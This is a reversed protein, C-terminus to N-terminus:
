VPRTSSERPTDLVTRFLKLMSQTSYPKPLFHQLGASAAKIVDGHANLGSTGIIKAGPDHRFLTEVMTAGDMVPMMIDTLILAIEQKYRAYLAVGEAGDQATLVRYGFSELTQRTINRISVEDDVVLVLENRGRPLEPAFPARSGARLAADAPLQITFTTGNGLESDVHIAGGHGKVVAHVTALGLGTGKGQDKTTFFPEFIRDRIEPPVGCGTDSVKLQVYTGASLANAPGTEEAEITVNETVFTLAGGNPMADRANVALNLLVQHLQTPDGIIPWINTPVQISLQINRPFTERIIGELDTFVHRLNVAVRQGDVGRAFTLVQRVLDAGRRASVQITELLQLRQPNEGSDIKLLDISMLIPALVNNLDHAIGGALTGISEMRQARLFQTELQKRETHDSIGGVMRYAHGAADRMIQCRDQVVAYKGDKRRFRYEAGWANEGSAITQHIGNFVRQYDDPHVRKAWSEMGPELEDLSYGFVSQFTDSWWVKNTTLNWDWVVDSVARAVMKFRQESERLAAESAKRASIDRAIVQVERRGRFDFSVAAVEVAVATGDRRLFKQEVLPLAEGKLARDITEQALAHCDPHVVDLLPIGTLEGIASAGLLSCFAANALTIRGESVVFDADPSLMLLKCYREENELVAIDAIRKQTIDDVTGVFGIVRGSADKNPAALVRAWRVSGDRMLLRVEGSWRQGARAANRWADRVTVRDAPHLVRAWGFRLVETQPRGVIKLLAPNCYTCRGSPGSEFIGLPASDSLARFRLESALLEATAREQLTVDVALVIRAQRGAFFLDHGFIDVPFVTGDKTRHRWRGIGALDHAPRGVERLLTPCDETPRLDLLTMKLFEARTYGYRTIAAENVALYGLTDRDFVFLPLPNQSFLLWHREASDTVAVLAHRLELLSLTQRALVRLAEQQDATLTRPERDMICLTGIAYESITRLPASAYFRIGLEGTVQPNDAFRPDAATDPVVFLDNPQAIAHACFSIDRLEQKRKLGHRAKYWQRDRDVFTVAAYPVNCIRAALAVLDDFSKEPPTDLVGYERLVRLRTEEDPPILPTIM